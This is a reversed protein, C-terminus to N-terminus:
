SPQHGRSSMEYHYAFRNTFYSPLRRIVRAVFWVLNPHQAMLALAKWPQYRLRRKFEAFVPVLENQKRRYALARAADESITNQYRKEFWLSAAILQGVQASTRSQTSTNRTLEGIRTTYIYGPQRVIVGKVGSALLEAYFLFDEGYRYEPRYLVRTRKLEQMRILPKMWGLYSGTSPLDGKVFYDLTWPIIRDGSTSVLTRAIRKADGDYLYQNDGVMGYNGDVGVQYLRGLRDADMADDADLVAVWEGKALDLGYNRAIGPGSNEKLKVVKIRPEFAAYGMAVSFTDDTSGDDVIILEWEQFAQNLVSGISREFFPAANFAPMIISVKPTMM